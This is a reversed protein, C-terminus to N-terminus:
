DDIVGAGEWARHFDDLTEFRRAPEPECARAVVDFLARPGRFPAPDLSGDSLFVLAARGMTFVSTRQDIQAGLEFEEPAMFRTSGFMRGMENRFPGQRYNDLDVVALSGTSFDYIMCGDYFDSAVWGARGLQAHLEYLTDLCRRIVEAPLSRFRQYPSDPDGRRDSRVGLLEGEAWRFVLLPGEPSEITHLLPPVAPHSVAAHFRAADRLLGVRAAHGLFPRQDDPRGATKVFFREGAVAVGYSVNGSDQAARDFEAFVAGASRLFADPPVDIAPHDLLPHAM